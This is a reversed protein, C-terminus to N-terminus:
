QPSVGKTTLDQLLMRLSETEHEDLNIIDEFVDSQSMGAIANITGAPELTEAVPAQPVATEVMRNQNQFVVGPMLGFVLVMSFGWAAAPKWGMGGLWNRKASERQVSRSLLANRVDSRFDAWDPEPIHEDATMQMETVQGRIAEVSKLTEACRACSELHIRRKDPLAAGEMLNMFDEAKLHGLM